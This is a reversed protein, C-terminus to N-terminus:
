RLGAVRSADPFHSALNIALLSGPKSAALAKQIHEQSNGGVRRDSSIVAAAFEMEPGGGQAIAKVVLSYGDIGQPAVQKFDWYAEGHGSVMGAERYTEALYGLDFRALVAEKERSEASYKQANAKLRELLASALKADNRSYLTARRLTEMRVIVPMDSTLLATTDDLLRNVDYAPDVRGWEPGKFPLSRADGINFPHCILPPGALAATQLLLVGALVFAANRLTPRNM